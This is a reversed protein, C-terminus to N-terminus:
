EQDLIAIGIGDGALVVWTDKEVNFDVPFLGSADLHFQEFRYGGFSRFVESGQAGSFLADTLAALWEVVLSTDEVSDDRSEHALSTVEGPAVSGASLGDVAFFELVFPILVLEVDGVVGGTHQAHGVRALVGVSRLKEDRGGPALPQIALVNDKPLDLVAIFNDLFDFGETRRGTRGGLLHNNGVASLELFELEGGLGDVSVVEVLPTLINHVIVLLLFGFLVFLRMADCRM